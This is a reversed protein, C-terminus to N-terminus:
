YENLIRIFDPNTKFAAFERTNRLYDTNKWGAELTAAQWPEQQILNNTFILPGFRNDTKHIMNEILDHFNSETPISNKLFFTELETRTREAM